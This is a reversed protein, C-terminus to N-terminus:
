KQYRKLLYDKMEELPYQDEMQMYHLFMGDLCANYFFAEKEPNEVGINSFVRIIQTMIEAQKEELYDELGLKTEPQFILSTLLQWHHLDEKVISISKETILRLKEYASIDMAIFENWWSEQEEISEMIIFHLLDEKGDFYNYMLGKSIGAVTAIKSVSTSHYGYKGFLELAANMIKTRSQQRIEDFQENSRPSM